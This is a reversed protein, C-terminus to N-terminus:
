PACPRPRTRWSSSAGASRRLAAPLPRLRLLAAARRAGRRRPPLRPPRDRPRRVGRSPPHGDRGQARLHQRLHLHASGPRGPRRADRRRRARRRVAGRRRAAGRRTRLGSPGDVRPPDRRRSRGTRDRPGPRLGTRRHQPPLAEDGPQGARLRHRPAARRVDPRHIRPHQRRPGPDPGRTGCGPRHALRRVGTVLRGTGCLDVRGLRRAGRPRRAPRGRGGRATRPRYRHRHGRCGADSDDDLLRTTM